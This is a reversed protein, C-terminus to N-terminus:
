HHISGVIAQSSVPFGWTTPKRGLILMWWAQNAGMNEWQFAGQCGLKM